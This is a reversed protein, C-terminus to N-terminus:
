VRSFPLADCVFGSAGRHGGGGHLQAIMGVDVKESYLSVTFRQGDHIFAICIPYKHFREGFGSSGFMYQNCAYAQVGNIETEFGFSKCLQDCYNDRYQTAIKGQEAVERVLNYYGVDLLQSWIYDTPESNHLKMGEYFAKSEEMKLAWKDYDGILQVAEPMANTPFYHLWTLECGSFSKDTFDRLGPLDYGYRAATKHHDIWTVSAAGAVIISMEEPKYSFDVIVVDQGFYSNQDPGPQNYNTEFFEVPSQGKFRKWVIAAACKGDLDNHHICLM